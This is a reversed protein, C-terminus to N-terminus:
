STIQACGTLQRYAEADWRLRDFKKYILAGITGSLIAVYGFLFFWEM